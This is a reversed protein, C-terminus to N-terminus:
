FNLCRSLGDKAKLGYLATRELPIDDDVEDCNEGGWHPDPPTRLSSVIFWGHRSCNEVCMIGL